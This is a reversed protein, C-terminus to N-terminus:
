GKRRNISVVKSDGSFMGEMRRLARDFSGPFLHAYTDMTVTISSHGMAKQLAKQM